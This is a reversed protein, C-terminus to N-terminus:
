VNVKIPLSCVISAQGEAHNTPQSTHSEDYQCFSHSIVKSLAGSASMM